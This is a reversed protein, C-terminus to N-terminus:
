APSRWGRSGGCLDATFDTGRTNPRARAVNWGAQAAADAPNENWAHTLTTLFGGTAPGFGACAIDVEMTQRAFEPGGKEQAEM